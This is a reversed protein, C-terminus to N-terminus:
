KFDFVTTAAPETTVFLKSEFLNIPPIGAWIM